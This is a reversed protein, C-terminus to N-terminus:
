RMDTVRAKACLSLKLGDLIRVLCRYYEVCFQPDIGKDKNPFRSLETAGRDFAIKGLLNLCMM